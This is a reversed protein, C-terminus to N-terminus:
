WRSSPCSSSRAGCAMFRIVRSTVFLQLLFGVLNVTAIISGSFATVFQRTAPIASPDTGFRAVAEQVIVRNLVYGVTTNVVNLLVILVAIWLLYRDKLVLEFGGVPAIPAANIVAAEPEARATERRNVVLAIGLAMMLVCAGLFM